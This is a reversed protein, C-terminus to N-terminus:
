FCEATYQATPPPSVTALQFIGSPTKATVSVKFRREIEEEKM